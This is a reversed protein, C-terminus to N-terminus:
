AGTLIRRPVTLKPSITLFSNGLAAPSGGQSWFLFIGDGGERIDTIDPNTVRFEPSMELGVM